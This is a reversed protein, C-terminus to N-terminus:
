SPEEDPVVMKRFSKAFRPIDAQFQLHVSFNKTAGSVSFAGIVKKPKKGSGWVVLRRQTILM